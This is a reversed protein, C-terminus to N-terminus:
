GTHAYHRLSLRSRRTATQRPKSRNSPKSILLAYTCSKTTACSQLLPRFAPEHRRSHNFLYSFQELYAQLHKPGIGCFTDNIWRSAKRGIALLNRNRKPSFKHIVSAISTCDSDVHAHIFAYRGAPTVRDEILHSAHIQKIKLHRVEGALDVTAGILLPHEQPHRYVTPNFPRGYQSCNIHVNGSLREQAESRSMAHRIKHGILWATKYTTGIADMLRIASIGPERSHLYLAQFWNSLSTRSKEFITGVTLSTQHGCACCEFLPLRRRCIPFYRSYACRPCRYGHPWKAQFLASACVEENNFNTRFLELSPYDSFDVSWSRFGTLQATSAM